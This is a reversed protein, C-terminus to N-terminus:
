SGKLRELSLRLDPDIDLTLIYERYDAPLATLARGQYKGFPMIHVLSPVLAQKALEAFTVKHNDQVYLLLDRVTQVDGDASHSTQPPLSLERQLTELKHNTTHKIFRRAIKLSCVSGKVPICNKIMRLDFDARHAVLLIPGDILKAIEALVPKGKIQEDTIGHVARAGDEIPCEPDVLSHFQDLINLESDVRLWAIECVGGRISATETDLIHFSQM